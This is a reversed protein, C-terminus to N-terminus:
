GAPKGTRTLLPASRLLIQLDLWLSARSVYELDLRVLKRVASPTTVVGSAGNVQAWGTIGPRIFKRILYRRMVRVFVEEHMPLHPRPGVVSMDGKLVNIFQPLEDLSLKRLWRGAPYVRPDDKSAQKAETEGTLNMTRYKYIM